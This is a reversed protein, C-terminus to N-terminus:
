PCGPDDFGNVYYNHNKCNSANLFGAFVGNQTHGDLFLFIDNKQGQAPTPIGNVLPRHKTCWTIVTNEAPTKLFLQRAYDPDPMGGTDAAAATQQNAAWRMLGYSQVSMQTDLGQSLAFEDPGDYNDWGSKTTTSLDNPNDDLNDPCHLDDKSQLYQPVVIENQANAVGLLMRFGNLDTGAPLGGLSHYATQQNAPWQPTDWLGPPYGLTDKNFLVMAQYIEHLNSQCKAQRARERATAFVPLLIAALIAIIAIVVLLEILTFGGRQKRRTDNTM